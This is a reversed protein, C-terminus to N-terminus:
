SLLQTQLILTQRFPVAPTAGASDQVVLALTDGSAIYGHRVQRAGYPKAEAYVFFDGLRADSAPATWGPDMDSSGSGRPQIGPVGGLELAQDAFSGVLGASGFRLLYVRSHTGDPMTWGRAAVQRLGYDELALALRARDDKPYEALYKEEPVIGGSLAADPRSGAPAPLVLDRPDAYHRGATNASARPVPEGKHLAPLRLEPYDWRGDSETALGPVEGRDLSSLYTAVGAGLGGCLVLAASWRAVARLVRRDKPAPAEDAHPLAPGDPAATPPPPPPTTDGPSPRTTDGPPPPATDGPPPTTIQDSM